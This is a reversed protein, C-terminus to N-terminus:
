HPNTNTGLFLAEHKQVIPGVSNVRIVCGGKGKIRETSLEIHGARQSYKIANSIVLDLMQEFYPIYSEIILDEDSTIAVKIGNRITDNSRRLKSRLLKSQVNLRGPACNKKAETLDDLTSILVWGAFDQWSENIDTLTNGLKQFAPSQKPQPLDVLQKQASQLGNQVDRSLLRFRELLQNVDFM